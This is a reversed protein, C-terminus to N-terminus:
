RCYGPLHWMSKWQKSETASPEQEKREGM